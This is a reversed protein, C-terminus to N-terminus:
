GVGWGETRPVTNTFRSISKNNERFDSCRTLFFPSIGNQHGCRIEDKTLPSASTNQPQPIERGSDTEIPMHHSTEYQSSIFVSEFLLPHKWVKDERTAAESGSRGPTDTHASPAAEAPAAPPIYPSTVHSAGKDGSNM